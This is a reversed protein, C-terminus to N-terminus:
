IITTQTSDSNLVTSVSEGASTDFASFGSSLVGSYITSSGIDANNNGNTGNGNGGPINNNEAFDACIRCRILLATKPYRM